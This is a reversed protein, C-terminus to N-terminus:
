NEYYLWDRIIKGFNKKDGQLNAKREFFVKYSLTPIIPFYSVQYLKLSENGESLSNSIFENTGNYNYYYYYPNKRNYANYVSFTWIAKRGHKTVKEYNLSIDLRHYDKMRASNKDGYIIAEDYNPMGNEDFDGTAYIQRGVGPTYPLGTMYIWSFSLSINNKIKFTSSATFSHTRDFDFIYKEGNNVEPFQRTTNSLTYAIFGTIKGSNKKVLFECGKSIGSGGTELKSEWNTDGTLSSYGEKYTVIDSLTKYYVNIESTIKNQLFHGKWGISIQSSSSPSINKTSPIWIENNMISGPTYLLHSNQHVLMYNVNLRQNESFSYNVDIRPEFQLYNYHSITYMIARAGINASVKNKLNIINNFYLLSENAQLKEKDLSNKTSQNEEYGPLNFLFSTSLGLNCTWFESLLYKYNSLLTTNQLSSTFENYYTESNNDINVNYKNYELLRYRTYSLTNEM